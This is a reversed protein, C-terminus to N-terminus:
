YLCSLRRQASAFYAIAEAVWCGVNSTESGQFDLFATAASLFHPTLALQTIHLPFPAIGGLIGGLLDNDGRSRTDALIALKM